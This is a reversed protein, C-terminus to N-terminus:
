WCCVGCGLTDRALGEGALHSLRKERFEKGQRLGKKAQLEIKGGSELEIM